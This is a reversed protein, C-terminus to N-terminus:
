LYSSQRGESGRRRHNECDQRNNLAIFIGAILSLEEIANENDIFSEDFV